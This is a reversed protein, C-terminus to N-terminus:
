RLIFRERVIYRSGAPGLISEYLLFERALFSSFKPQQLGAKLTRLALKGARGKARALTIHPHYERAEPTFGCLATAGTIAQQLASLEPTLQAEVFLIGTRDFVNLSGLRLSITRLRLDRLRPVLCSYQEQSSNGLFQLTIHWSEPASWRLGDDRSRLRESASSLEDAIEAPLPIGLFLRM